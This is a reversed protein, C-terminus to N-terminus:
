KDYNQCLHYMCADYTPSVAMALKCDKARTLSKHFLVRYVKRILVIPMFVLLLVTM